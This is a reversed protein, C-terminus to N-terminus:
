RFSGRSRGRRAGRPVQRLDPERPHDRIVRGNRIPRIVIDQGLVM